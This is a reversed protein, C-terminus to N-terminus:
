QPKVTFKVTKTTSNDSHDWVTINLTVASEVAVSPTFHADFEYSSKNHVSPSTKLLESGDSDLTVKIEMEHLSEDTVVGHVHVEGSLSAGEVPNELMIVPATVDDKHNHEHCAAVTLLCLAGFFLSKISM